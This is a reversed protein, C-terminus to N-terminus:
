PALRGIKWEGNELEYFVRDHLRSPRGQWFEFYVPVLRYGGWHTPKKIDTDKLNALRTSLFDKNPIRSSQPSVIASRQSELPRTLFYATSKEEEIKELLGEIRVQRELVDWFFLLQAQPNENIERGKRSEYNTFFVFGREDVEKLLLIRCSPKAMKDATALTMITPEMISSNKADDFWQSFQMFPNTAITKEDLEFKAYDKRENHLNLSM